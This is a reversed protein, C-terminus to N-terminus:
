SICFDTDICRIESEYETDSQRGTKLHIHEQALIKKIKKGREDNGMLVLM